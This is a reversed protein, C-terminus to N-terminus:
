TGYRQEFNTVHDVSDALEVLGDPQLFAVLCCDQTKWGAVYVANRTGDTSAYRRAFAVLQAGPPIVCALKSNGEYDEWVFTAIRRPYLTHLTKISTSGEEKLETGESTTARWTM